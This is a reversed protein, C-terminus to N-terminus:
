RTPRTRRPLGTDLHSNVVALRNGFKVATLPCAFLPYTILGDSTGSSLDGSLRWRSIQDPFSQVAWLRRGELV